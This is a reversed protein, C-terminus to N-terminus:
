RTLWRTVAKFFLLLCVRAARTTSARTPQSSGPMHVRTTCPSPSATRIRFSTSCGRRSRLRVVAIPLACARQAHGGPVDAPEARRAASPRALPPGRALHACGQARHARVRRGAPAGRRARGTGDGARAHARAPQERTPAPARARTRRSLAAAPPRPDLVPRHERRRDGDGRLAPRRRAPATLSLTCPTSKQSPAGQGAAVLTNMAEVADDPLELGGGEGDDEDDDDEEEIEMGELLDAGGYEPADDDDDDDDDMYEEDHMDDVDLDDMGHHMAASPYAATQSAPFGDRADHRPRPPQGLEGPAEGMLPIESLRCVWKAM